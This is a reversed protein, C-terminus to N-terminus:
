TMGVEGGGESVGLAYGGDDDDDDDDDDVDDDQTDPKGWVVTEVMNRLRRLIDESSFEIKRYISLNCRTETCHIDTKLAKEMFADQLHDFLDFLTRKVSGTPKPQICEQTVHLQASFLSILTIRRHIDRQSIERSSMYEAM